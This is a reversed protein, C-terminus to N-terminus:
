AADEGETMTPAPQILARLEALVTRVAMLQLETDREAQELAAIRQTIREEM